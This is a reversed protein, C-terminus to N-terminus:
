KRKLKRKRKFIKVAEKHEKVNRSFMHGGETDSVFYFYDSKEPNVSAILASLGPNNIPGPPLGKHLYTNYPSEVKLDKNWLRRNKGPIIYQVTPDAQLLMNKNLRNHYVSSIMNMESRRAAEGQIISALAVVDNINMNMKKAKDEVFNEYTYLFQNIMKDMIQKETYSTLFIYTDPYLFGECSPADIGFKKIYSSKCRNIFRSSDIGITNQLKSAYEEVGWGEIFTLKIKSGSASTIISILDALDTVGSLDYRGAYINDEKFTLKMIIKFLTVDNNSFYKEDYLLNAVSSASSGEPIIIIPNCDRCGIDTSSKIIYYFLILVLISILYSYKKM